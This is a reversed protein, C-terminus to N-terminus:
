NIKIKNIQNNLDKIEKEIEIKLKFNEDIRNEINKINNFSSTLTILILVVILLIWIFFIVAFLEINDSCCLYLMFSGVIGGTIWNSILHKKDSEVRSISESFEVNLKEVGSLEREKEALRESIDLITFYLSAKKFFNKANDTEHYTDIKKLKNLNKSIESKYNSDFCIRTFNESVATIYKEYGVRKEPYTNIFESFTNQASEYDELKLYTNGRNLLQECTSIGDVEIKGDTRFLKRAEETSYKCGCHQCVFLGDQKVLEKSGCMECIMAKM